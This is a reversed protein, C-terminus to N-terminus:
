NKSGCRSCVQQGERCQTHSYIGCDPCEFWQDTHTLIKDCYSCNVQPLKQENQSDTPTEASSDLPASKIENDSSVPAFTDLASATDPLHNEEVESAPQESVGLSGFASHLNQQENQPQPEPQIVQPQIQQPIAQTQHHQVQAAYTAQHQTAQIADSVKAIENAEQRRLDVIKDETWGAARYQDDTITSQQPMVIPAAQQPTSVTPQVAHQQTSSVTEEEDDEYDDDDDMSKRRKNIAIIMLSVFLLFILGGAGIMLPMQQEFDVLGFILGGGELEPTAITIESVTYWLTEHFM